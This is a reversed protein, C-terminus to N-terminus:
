PSAPADEPTPPAFTVHATMNWRLRPEYHDPYVVGGYVIEGGRYEGLPRLQALTGTLSLNALADVRITAPDGVKVLSVDYESLNLLEIQWASLDAIQAILASEAVQEGVVLTLGAVTGAVPARVELELLDVQKEALYAQAAVLDAQAAAVEEPRAGATLLDLDATAKRLEAEAIAQETERQSAEQGTAPMIAKLRDLTVQAIDVKAQAAAIAQPAAGVQLLDLHAQAADVQAQAQQVTLKVLTDDLRALLQNAAVVEGEDVLVEAVTGAAAARLEVHAVPVVVAEAVVRRPLNMDRTTVQAPLTATAAVPVGAEALTPFGGLPQLYVFSLLLVVAALLFMTLIKM